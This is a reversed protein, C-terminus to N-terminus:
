VRPRTFQRLAGVWAVREEDSRYEPLFGLKIYTRIAPTRFADTELVAGALGREAFGVLCAQTVIEGLGLGAADPLVGVYHVYGQGPYLDLHRESATGVVEGARVIVWTRDVDPAELLVDKIRQESWDEKFSATLVRALAAGDEATAERLDFGDPLPRRETPLAAVTRMFLQM